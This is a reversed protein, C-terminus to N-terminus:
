AAPPPPPSPQWFEYTIVGGPDDIHYHCPTPSLGILVPISLGSASSTSTYAALRHNGEIITFPGAKSHGWLIPYPWETPPSKLADPKRAAVKRLENRDSPDDWGCRAIVRLEDLEDATLNQVDYWETDPPIEGFVWRRVYYLLYLRLRNQQADTLDPHDIAAVFAPDSREFRKRESRLFEAVVMHITVPTWNKNALSMSAGIKLVIKRQIRNRILVVPAM